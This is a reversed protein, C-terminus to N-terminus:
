SPPGVPRRRLERLYIQARAADAGTVARPDYAAREALRTLESFAQGRGDLDPRVLALYEAPTQSPRAPGARREVVRRGRRYADLVAARDDPATLRRRLGPGFRRRWLFYGAAAILGAILGAAIPLLLAAAGGGIALLGGGLAGQVSGIIPQDLWTSTLLGSEPRTRVGDYRPTPDFPVWGANNSWVEVWAHADSARVTYLGTFANYEGPGFGTVLRAPVDQHRLLLVMASAFQTCFGAQDEFLFQEVSDADPPLPPINLEYTYNERLYREILTAKDLPSRARGAIDAALRGIPSRRSTPAYSRYRDPSNNLDIGSIGARPNLVQSIVSYSAGARLPDSRKLSRDATLSLSPAEGRFTVSVPDYGVPVVESQDRMIYFTQVYQRDPDLDRGRGAIIYQGRRDREVPRDPSTTEWTQGTYKDFALGRWYSRVPSRVHFAVTENLEGRFRMDVTADLGGTADNNVQIFPVLPEVTQPQTPPNFPLTLTLPSILQSSTPRPLSLTFLVTLALSAVGFVSWFAWGGAADALRFPASVSRKDELTAIVFVAALGVAFGALLVGFTLSFGFNSALYFVGLTHILTGYLNRRTRLDFSTVAQILMGLQAQPLRAGALGTVIDVLVWLVVGALAAGLLLRRGTSTAGRARYSSWHGFCTLIAAILGVPWIDGVFGLTLYGWITTGLVALRLPRSPEYRGPSRRLFAPRRM